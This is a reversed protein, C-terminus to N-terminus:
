RSAVGDGDRGVVHAGEARVDRDLAHVVDRETAFHCASSHAAGDRTVLMPEDTACIDEAKWCRTRFRCGSPPDVPSPM